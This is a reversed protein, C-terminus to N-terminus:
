AAVGCERLKGLESYCVRYSTGLSGFRVATVLGKSRLVSLARITIQRSVGAFHGLEVYRIPAPGLEEIAMLVLKVAAASPTKGRPGVPMTGIDARVILSLPTM